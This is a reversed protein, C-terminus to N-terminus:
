RRGAHGFTVFRTRRRRKADGIGLTHGARGAREDM